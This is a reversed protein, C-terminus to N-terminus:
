RRAQQAPAGRPRLFALPVTGVGAIAAMVWWGTEYSGTRDALLGFLPPIGFSGVRQITSTFGMTTGTLAPGAFESLLPLYLGTWGMATGGVVFVLLVVSVMPSDSTLWGMAGLSLASMIGVVALVAVRHGGLLFDSVVVWSIRGVAGGVMASALLGGAVGASMGLDERLFLVLYSLLVLMLGAFATSFMAVLWIDRNKAVLPLRAGAESVTNKEAHSAPRDRYFAFFLLGSVGIILAVVMLAVRWSYTVGLFTLLVAAIIGGIPISAETIGLALGRAQPAVWEMIAKVFVPFSASLTAAILLGLIVGQLVSQMQSLLLVLVAGGTLTAAQLRRVGVVDAMWGTLLATVVGGVFLSASILGLQARTAGLDEQIFPFLAGIGSNLFSVAMTTVVCLAVVVRSYPIGAFVHSGIM